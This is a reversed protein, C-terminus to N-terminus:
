TGNNIGGKIKEFVGEGNSFTGLRKLDQFEKEFKETAKVAWREALALHEEKLVMWIATLGCYESVGIYAFKNELVARDERDLWTDCDDMSPFLKVAREVIDGVFDEWYIDFDDDLCNPSETYAVAFAGRPVSVSRGM